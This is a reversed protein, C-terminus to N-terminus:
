LGRIAPTLQEFHGGIEKGAAAKATRRRSCQGLAGADGLRDEVTVECVLQIQEDREDVLDARVDNMLPFLRQLADDIRLITQFYEHSRIRGCKLSTGGWIANDHLGDRLRFAIRRDDRGHATVHRAQM